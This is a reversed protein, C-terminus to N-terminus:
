FCISSHFIHISALLGVYICGILKGSFVGIYNLPSLLREVLSAPFLQIFTQSIFYIKIRVVCACMHMCVSLCVCIDWTDENSYDVELVQHCHEACLSDTLSICSQTPRHSKVWVINSEQTSLLETTNLEWCGRHVTAQWSERGMSNELCSCQLPSDNGREPIKVVWPDFRGEMEQM